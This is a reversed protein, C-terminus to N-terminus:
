NSTKRSSSAGYSPRLGDGGGSNLLAEPEYEGGHFSM